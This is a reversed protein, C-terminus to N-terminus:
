PFIKSKLYLRVDGNKQKEIFAIGIMNDNITTTIECEEFECLELFEDIQEKYLNLYDGRRDEFVEGGFLLVSKNNIKNRCKLRIM